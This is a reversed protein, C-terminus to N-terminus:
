CADLAQWVERECEGKVKKRVRTCIHRSLIMCIYAVRELRMALVVGPCM